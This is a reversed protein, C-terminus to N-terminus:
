GSQEETLKLLDVKKQRSKKLCSFAVEGLVALERNDAGGRRISANGEKNMEKPNRKGL